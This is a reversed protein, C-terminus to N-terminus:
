VDEYDKTTTTEPEVGSGTVLTYKHAEPSVNSLLLYIRACQIHLVLCGRETHIPDEPYPFPAFM